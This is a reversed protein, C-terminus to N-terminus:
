RCTITAGSRTGVSHALTTERTGSGIVVATTDFTGACRAQVYVKSAVLFNRRPMSSSRRDALLACGAAARARGELIAATTDGACDCGYIAMMAEFAASEADSWFSRATLIEAGSARPASAILISPAASTAAGKRTADNAATAFSSPGGGTPETSQVAGM